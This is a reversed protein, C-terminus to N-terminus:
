RFDGTFMQLYNTGDFYVAVIDRAGAAATLVPPTGGPWWVTLPWTVTFGGGAGQILKLMYNGPGPPPNYTIVSIATLTVRQKQGNRWNITVGAGPSGNNYEERFARVVGDKAQEDITGIPM